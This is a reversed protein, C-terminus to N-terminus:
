AMRLGCLSARSSPTAASVRDQGEAVQVIVCHLGVQITRLSLSFDFVRRLNPYIQQRDPVPSTAM